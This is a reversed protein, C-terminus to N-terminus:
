ITLDAESQLRMGEKYIEIIAFVLLGVVLYPLYPFQFFSDNQPLHIAHGELLFNSRAFSTFFYQALNKILPMVIITSAIWRLKLTNRGEFTSKKYLARFITYLQFSIFLGMLLWLNYFVIYLVSDKDLADKWNKFDFRVFGSKHMLFTSEGKENLTKVEIPNWNNEILSIYGRITVESKKDFPISYNLILNILFYILHSFFLLKIFYYAGQFVRKKGITKM